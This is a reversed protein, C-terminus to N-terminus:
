IWREDMGDDHQDEDGDDDHYNDDRRTVNSIKKKTSSSGPASNPDYTLASYSPSPLYKIRIVYKM